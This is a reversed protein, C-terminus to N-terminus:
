RIQSDLNQIMAKCAKAPSNWWTSTTVRQFAYGNLSYTLEDFSSLRTNSFANICQNLLEARDNAQIQFPERELTGVVRIYPTYAPQSSRGAEQSLIQCIQDDSYWRQTTASIFRNNNATFFLEDATGNSIRSNMCNYYLENTDRGSVSFFSDEVVGTVSLGYSPYPNPQPNPYPNPNPQPQPTPNSGGAIECDLQSNPYQPNRSYDLRISKRCEKMGEFCSSPDGYARFTRLVQTKRYVMNVECIQAFASVSLSLLALVLVRKM